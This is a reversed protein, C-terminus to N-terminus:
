NEGSAWIRIREAMYPFFPNATLRVFADAGAILVAREGRPSLRGLRFLGSGDEVPDTGYLPDDVPFPIAIHTLSYVGPPWELNLERDATSSQGHEITRAVVSFTDAARNTILTRRYRREASDFLRAVLSLDEARVFADIGARHNLDFLVLESGNAPLRDYLANVVAPTSVTADVASQFTLIPPLAALRGGDALRRLDRQLARTVALTQFGANAAFSNYKIPNFEPLVDLWQAKEFYPFVGLLSIWRALRAAPTVGIMPSLLVLRSPQPDQPRELAETTYKVALAGGNSYGVLVLPRDAGVRQRAHRMGMRVAALWDEWHADVLGAPVTGHGPMRLALSYFGEERLLEAVARMSYPSDTLGHVLVAGGRIEAPVLEFTRNWNRGFRSHHTASSAFYRNVPTQDDAAVHRELEEVEAFVEDERQLWREFTFDETLEGADVDDPVLHHWPKLDPHRRRADVAGGIVLTALILLIAFALRTAWTKVFQV